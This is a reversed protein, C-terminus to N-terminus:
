HWELVPWGHERAHGALVPDPNVAHPYDVACLWPLDNRSDSYFCAGALSQHERELWANLRIVKGERYTLVGHTRGTYHAGDVELDIALCADIGARAAIPAVLHAGSASIVLLRDGRARHADIAARADRRIRPEIVEDIFAAVAADVESVSRAVLPALTLTMYDDMTLRGESYAQMMEDNRRVFAEGDAWGLAAMRRSWLSACDGELITDDLDFVALAM